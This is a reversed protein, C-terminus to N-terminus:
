VNVADGKASALIASEKELVPRVKENLYREVQEPACGIFDNPNVIADFDDKISAFAADNRLRELLDNDGGEEKIRRAAAMSHERIVEHLEQRDGGKKVAAMMLNETAMFPLEARVRKAIVNPWVQLGDTINILTSLVVDATLFAESLALRRNASDDLTREFWQVSHTQACNLPLNMLYRSLSCVRESRMPNRKYAMASSGIQKKGFPEELERLNALLRIDTAMKHASQGIGSLVSLVKYDVKRTYTQGSLDIIKDFGMRAAVRKELEAVKSYDRNFLALFSAQTGTTGKVSRFPLNASEFELEELDLMFDQLYLAFRKGVTTLQAPQYHTFGLTPMSRYKDCFDALQAILKLLKAKLIKLGDRMQILETNDTVYCSTAGLHIIPMATPCQQGFAHVHSMVDHRLEKEFAEAVDFNVDDLHERMEAIQADTIDLGLKQEEEALALWLRRWTSHKKHPSWNYNMEPGAYRGTLPNQYSNYDM